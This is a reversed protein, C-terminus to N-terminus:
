KTTELFIAIIFLYRTNTPFTELDLIVTFSYLNFLDLIMKSSIALHPMSDYEERFTTITLKTKYPYEREIREGCRSSGSSSGTLQYGASRSQGIATKRM